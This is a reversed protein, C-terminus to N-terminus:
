GSHPGTRGSASQQCLRRKAAVTLYNGRYDTVPVGAHAIDAWPYRLPYATRLVIISAGSVTVAIM